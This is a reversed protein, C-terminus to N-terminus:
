THINVLMTQAAGCLHCFVDRCAGFGSQGNQLDVMYLSYSCDVFYTFDSGVQAASKQDEAPYTIEAVKSKCTTATEEGQQNKYM